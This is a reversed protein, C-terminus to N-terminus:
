TDITSVVPVDFEYIKWKSNQSAMIDVQQFLFPKRTQVKDLVQKANECLGCNQRTFLTIRNTVKSAM